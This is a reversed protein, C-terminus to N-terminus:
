LLLRLDSIVDDAWRLRADAAATGYPEVTDIHEYDAHKRDRQLENVYRAAEAERLVAGVIGAHKGPAIGGRRLGTYLVCVVDPLENHSFREDAFRDSGRRHPPVIGLKAALHMATAHIVYYRRAISQLLCGRERLATSARELRTCLAAFKPSTESSM